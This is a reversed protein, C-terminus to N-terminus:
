FIPIVNIGCLQDGRSVIALEGIQFVDSFDVRVNSNQQDTSEARQVNGIRESSDWYNGWDLFPLFM